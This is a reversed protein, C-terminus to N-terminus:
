NRKFLPACMFYLLTCAIHLEINQDILVAYLRWELRNTYTHNFKLQYASRDNLIEDKLRQFLYM